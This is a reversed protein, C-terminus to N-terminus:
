RLKRPPNSSPSNCRIDRRRSSAPTPIRKGHRISHTRRPSKNFRRLLALAAGLCAFALPGGRPSITRGVSCAQSANAEGLYRSTGTALARINTCAGSAVDAAWLSEHDAARPSQTWVLVKGDPSWQPGFEDITADTKTCRKPTGGNTDVLHIKSPSTISRTNPTDYNAAFAALVGDATVALDRAFSGPQTEGALPKGSNCSAGFTAVTITTVANTTVYSQDASVYAIMQVGGRTFTEIQEVYRSCSVITTVPAGAVDNARQLELPLPSQATGTAELWVLDSGIWAPPALWLAVKVDNATRLARPSSGDIGVTMVQFVGGSSPDVDLYAVRKGGPAFRPVAHQLSEGGLPDIRKPPASICSSDVDAALLRYGAPIADVFVFATKEGPSSAHFSRMTLNGVRYPGNAENGRGGVPPTRAFASAGGTCAISKTAGGALSVWGAVSSTGGGDLAIGELFFAVPATATGADGPVVAGDGGSSSSTTGGDAIPGNGADPLRGDVTLDGVGSILACSALSTAIVIAAVFSSRGV